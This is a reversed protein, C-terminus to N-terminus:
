SQIYKIEDERKVKNTIGKENVVNLRGASNWTEKNWIKLLNLTLAFLALPSLLPRQV